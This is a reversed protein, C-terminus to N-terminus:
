TVPLPPMVTAPLVVDGAAITVLTKDATELRLGGDSDLGLLRGTVQGAGPDVTVIEGLGAAVRTWATALPAFGDHWLRDSWRAFRPALAALVADPDPARAVHGFVSGTRYGDLEPATALNLGIGAALWFPGDPEGGGEVVWSELLIGGMKAGDILLDNPWKLRIDPIGFDHDLTEWLALGLAFGLHALRSRPGPLCHLFTAALNGELSQWVRGRRGRGATQRRASIWIPRHWPLMARHRAEDQTSTVEALAILDFPAFAPTIM